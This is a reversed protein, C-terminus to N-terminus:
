VPSQHLGRGDLPRPGTVDCRVGPRRATGGDREGGGHRRRLCAMDRRRGRREGRRPHRPQDRQGFFGRARGFARLLGHGQPQRAGPRLPAPGRVCQTSLRPGHGRGHRAPRDRLNRSRPGTDRLDDRKREPDGVARYRQVRASPSGSRDVDRRPQPRAPHAGRACDRRPGRWLVVDVLPHGHGRPNGSRRRGALRRIERLLARHCPHTLERAIGDRFRPVSRESRGTAVHVVCPTASRGNRRRHGRAAPRGARGAFPASEVQVRARVARGLPSAPARPGPCDDRSRGKGCVRQLKCLRALHSRLLHAPSEGTAHNASAATRHLIFIWRLSPRPHAVCGPTRAPRRSSRFPIREPRSIRNPGLARVLQRNDGEHRVRRGVARSSRRRVRRVRLRDVPSPVLPERVHANDPLRAPRQLSPTTLGPRGGDRHGPSLPESCVQSQHFDSEKLIMRSVTHAM